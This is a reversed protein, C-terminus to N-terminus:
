KKGKMLEKYMKKVDITPDENLEKSIIVKIAHKKKLILFRKDSINAQPIASLLDLYYSRVDGLDEASIVSKKSLDGCYRIFETTSLIATEEQSALKEFNWIKELVVVTAIMMGTLSIAYLITSNIGSSFLSLSLISVLLSGIVAIISSLKSCFDYKNFLHVRIDRLREARRAYKEVTCEAKLVEGSSMLKNCGHGTNEM